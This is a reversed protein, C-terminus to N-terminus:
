RRPINPNIVALGFVGALFSYGAFAPLTIASIDIDASAVDVVFATGIVVGAVGLVTNVVKRVKPDSVVV